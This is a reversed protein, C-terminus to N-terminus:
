FESSRREGKAFCVSVLHWGPHASSDQTQPLPSEPSASFKKTETSYKQRAAAEAAKATAGWGQMNANMAAGAYIAATALRGETTVSTAQISQEKEGHWQQRDRQRWSSWAMTSFATPESLMLPNPASAPPDGAVVCAEAVLFACLKAPRSGLRNPSPGQLEWVAIGFGAPDKSHVPSPSLRM